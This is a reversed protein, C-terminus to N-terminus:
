RDENTLRATPCKENVVKEMQVASLVSKSLSQIRTPLAAQWLTHSKTTNLM